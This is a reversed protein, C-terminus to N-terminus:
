NAPPATRSVVESFAFRPRRETIRIRVEDGPHSGPVFVVLGGIRAVGNHEPDKKDKETVQVDFERGPQVNAAPDDVAAPAPEATKAAAPAPAEAAARSILKGRAFQERDETVEFVIDEGVKADPVFVVKGGVRVIGDGKKGIDSVTARYTKGLEPKETAPLPAVPAAAPAAVEEPAPEAAPATGTAEAVRSIVTAEAVSRKLRSVEIILVEGKRAGPVFTVLGGIRAVGSAGDKSEDQILVKYRHGEEAAVDKREITDVVEGRYVGTEEAEKGEVTSEVVEVEAERPALVLWLVAGLAALSLVLLLILPLTNHKVPAAAPAPSPETM